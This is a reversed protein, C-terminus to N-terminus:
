KSYKELQMEKFSYKWDIKRAADLDNLYSIFTTGHQEWLDNDFMHNIYFPVKNADDNFNYGEVKEKIKEKIEYPLVQASMHIPWEVHNCFLFKINPYNQKIYDYTETLYFM